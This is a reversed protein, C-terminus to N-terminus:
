IVLLMVYAIIDIKKHKTNKYAPSPKAIYTYKIYFGSSFCAFLFKMTSKEACVSKALKM